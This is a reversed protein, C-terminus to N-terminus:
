DKIYYYQYRRNKTALERRKLITCYVGFIILLFLTISCVTIAVIFGIGESLLINYDGVAGIKIQHGFAAM